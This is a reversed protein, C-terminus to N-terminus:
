LNGDKGEEYAVVTDNVRKLLGETEKTLAAEGTESGDGWQGNAFVVSRVTMLRRFVGASGPPVTPLGAQPPPDLSVVQYTLPDMAAMGFVMGSDEARRFSVVTVTIQSRRDADTFLAATLRLCGKGQQVVAALQQSMGRACETTTALDVREYRSGDKLRVSKSPFAQEPRIVPRALLSPLSSPADSPLAASVSPAAAARPSASTKAVAGGGKGDGGSYLVMGAGAAAVLLVGVAAAAASRARRAKRVREREAAWPDYPEYPTGQDGFTM